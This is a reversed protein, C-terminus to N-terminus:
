EVGFHKRIKNSLNEGCSKTVLDQLTFKGSERIVDLDLNSVNQEICIKYCEQVILEAFKEIFIDLDDSGDMFEKTKEALQRIQNKM